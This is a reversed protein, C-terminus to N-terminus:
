LVNMQVQTICDIILQVLNSPIIAELVTDHIFSWTLKDYAKEIDVKITMQGRRGTKRRMSHIVEQTIVINETIHRKPVFSIQQTGVFHPLIMKLKNAIMKTITKYVLTCLSIPRYMKLTQPHDNKPILVLLTKNIEPPVKRSQLHELLIVFSIGLWGGSLGKTTYDELAKKIGGIRAM